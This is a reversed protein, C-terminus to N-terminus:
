EKPFYCRIQSYQAQMFITGKPMKSLTERTMDSFLNASIPFGNKDLLETGTKGSLYASTRTFDYSGDISVMRKNLMFDFQLGAPRFEEFFVYGLPLSYSAIAQKMTKLDDGRLQVLLEVNKRKGLEIRQHNATADYVTLTYTSETLPKGKKPQPGSLVVKYGESVIGSVVLRDTLERSFADDLINTAYDDLQRSMIDGPKDKVFMFSERVLSDLYPKVEEQTNPKGKVM